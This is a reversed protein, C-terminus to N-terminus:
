LLLMMGLTASINIPASGEHLSPFMGLGHLIVNRFKQM